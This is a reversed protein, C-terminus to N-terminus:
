AGVRWGSQKRSCCTLVGLVFEAVGSLYVLALPQPLYPPMIRLYVAPKLWHGVGGLLFLVAFLVRGMVAAFRRIAPYM